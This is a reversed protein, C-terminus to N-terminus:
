TCGKAKSDFDELPKASFHCQYLLASHSLINNIFRKIPKMTALMKHYPSILPNQTYFCTQSM